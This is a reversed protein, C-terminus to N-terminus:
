INLLRRALSYLRRPISHYAANQAIISKNPEPRDPLNLPDTSFNLEIRFRSYKQKCNTADLGYGENAVLSKFPHVSWLGLRHQAYCFRIAWSNNRGAMYDRLMGYMDSGGRNFERQMKRSAALRDFDKVEWDVKAWRDAWTAWGWSSSRLSLYVDGHYDEPRKIKLGYACISFIRPDSEYKNLAEDFYNLAGPMLVLDDELVIAKGHRAMVDTVGEIISRALGKNAPAQVVNPTLRRAIEAVKRAKENEADNRGGDVFVYIERDDYGPNTRISDILRTMADPRKFGFIVIPTKM